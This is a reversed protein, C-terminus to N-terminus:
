EVEIKDPTTLNIETNEIIFETKQIVARTNAMVNIRARWEARQSAMESDALDYGNLEYRCWVNHYNTLSLSLGMPVIDKNFAQFFEEYVSFREVKDRCWLDLQLNLDYAGVIWKVSAQHEETEGQSLKFPSLPTFKPNGAIISFSPYRLQVNAAPFEYIVQSLSPMNAKLYTGLSELVAKVCSPNSM